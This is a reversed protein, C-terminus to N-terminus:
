DPVSDPDVRRALIVVSPADTPPKNRCFRHPGPQGAPQITIVREPPTAGVPLRWVAVDGERELGEIDLEDRYDAVLEEPSRDSSFADWRGMAEGMRTNQGCLYTMEGAMSLDYTEFIAANPDQECAAVGLLVLPVLIRVIARM